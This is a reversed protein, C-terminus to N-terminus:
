GSDDRLDRRKLYAEEANSLRLYMPVVTNINSPGEKKYLEFGLRAIQYARPFWFRKPAFEALDKLNEALFDQCVQLGDGVFLVKEKFHLLKEASVVEYGGVRALDDCHARYVAKYFLKKKADVVCCILGKYPILNYVLADLSPVGVIPIGLSFALGKGTAMGIRLGTFSGPGLGICILDIDKFELGTNKFLDEVIPILASSHVTYNMSYNCDIILDEDEVVAISGIRSSTDLALLKL